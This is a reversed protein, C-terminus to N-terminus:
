RGTHNSLAASGLFASAMNAMRAARMAKELKNLRDQNLYPTLAKLLSRQNNDINSQGALGSLKQIMSLDIDPLAPAEQRKPTPDSQPQQSQGLSQAMTMITQMMEPNQLIANMQNQLDDM